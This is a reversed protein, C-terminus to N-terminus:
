VFPIRKIALLHGTKLVSMSEGSNLLLFRDVFERFTAYYGHEGKYPYIKLDSSAGM